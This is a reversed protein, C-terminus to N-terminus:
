HTDLSDTRQVRMARRRLWVRRAGGVFLVSRALEWRGYEAQESLLQAAEARTIDHPIDVIRWQMHSGAPAAISRPTIIHGTAIKTADTM